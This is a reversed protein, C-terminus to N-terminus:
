LAAHQHDVARGLANHGRGRELQLLQRMLEHFFSIQDSLNEVQSRHRRLNRDIFFVNGVHLDTLSNQEPSARKRIFLEVPLDIKDGRAKQSRSRGAGGSFGSGQRQRGAAGGACRLSGDQDGSLNVIVRQQEFRLHGPLRLNEAAAAAGQVENRPTQRVGDLNFEPGPQSPKGCASQHEVARFSFFFMARAGRLFSDSVAAAVSIVVSTGSGTAACFGCGYELSFRYNIPRGVSFCNRRKTLSLAIWGGLEPSRTSSHCAALLITRSSSFSSAPRASLGESAGTSGSSLSSRSNRCTGRTRWLKLVTG